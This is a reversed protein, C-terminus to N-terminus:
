ATFCWRASAKTFSSNARGTTYRAAYEIDRRESAPESCTEIAFAYADSAARTPQAPRGAIGRRSRSNTRARDADRSSVRTPVRRPMPRRTKADRARLLAPGRTIGHASGDNARGARGIAPMTARSPGRPRPNPARAVVDHGTARRRDVRRHVVAAPTVSEGGVNCRAGVHRAGIRRAFAVGVVRGVAGSAHAFVARRPHSSGRHRVCRRKWRRRLRRRRKM